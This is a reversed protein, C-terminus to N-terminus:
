VFTTKPSWIVRDLIPAAEVVTGEGTALDYSTDEDDSSQIDAYDVQTWQAKPRTWTVGFYWSLYAHFKYNTHPQDNAYVNEHFLDWKDIHECHLM